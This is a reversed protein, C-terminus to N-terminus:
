LDGSHTLNFSLSPAAAVRPKGGPRPELAVAAPEVDTYLGLVTRLAWRSAVWRRRRAPIQIAEARTRDAGPLEAAAPWGPQDLAARWVHVEASPATVFLM